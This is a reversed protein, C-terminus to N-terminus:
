SKAAVRRRKPPSEIAQKLSLLTERLEAQRAEHKADVADAVTQAMRFHSDAIKEFALVMRDNSSAGAAPTRAKTVLYQGLAAMFLLAGYLGAIWLDSTITTM